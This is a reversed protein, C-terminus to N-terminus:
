KKLALLINYIDKLRSDDFSPLLTNIKSLYCVNEDHIIRLNESFLLAPTIKFYNCFKALMESSIFLKGTEIKAITQMQVELAEALQEQTINLKTRM